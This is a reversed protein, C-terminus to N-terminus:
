GLNKLSDNNTDLVFISKSRERMDQIYRNAVYYLQEESEESYCGYLCIMDNINKTNFSYQIYHKDNIFTKKEIVYDSFLDGHPRSLGKYIDEDPHYYDEFRDRDVVRHSCIDYARKWDHMHSYEENYETTLSVMDNNLQYGVFSRSSVFSIRKNSHFRTCGDNALRYRHVEFLGDSIICTSLQSLSILAISGKSEVKDYIGYHIGSQFKNSPNLRYVRFIYSNQYGAIDLFDPVMDDDVAIERSRFLM